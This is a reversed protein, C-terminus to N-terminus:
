GGQSTNRFYQLTGVKLKPLAEKQKESMKFATTKFPTGSHSIQGFLKAKQNAKMKIAKYLGPVRKM